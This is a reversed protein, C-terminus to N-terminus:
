KHLSAASATASAARLDTGALFRCCGTQNWV